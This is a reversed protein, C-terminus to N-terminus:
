LSYQNHIGMVTLQSIIKLWYFNENALVSSNVKEREREGLAVELNEVKKIRYTM